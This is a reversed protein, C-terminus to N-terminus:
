PNLTAPPPVTVELNTSDGQHELSEGPTSKGRGPPIFQEHKRSGTYCRSLGVAANDDRDMPGCKPCDYVRVSLPMPQRHGCKCCEQSSPHFRDVQQLDSGYWQCKYTLLRLFAGWGVDAISRSLKPNRILNAVALDEVVLASKTRALRTTTKHLFDRRINSVRRHCRAVQLIRKKRRHSGKVSRSLCRQRRRLSKLAKRLPKPAEIREIEGSQSGITAFTTLGLDIGVIPGIVPEPTAITQETLVAVQWRDAIRRITASLLKAGSPLELPKNKYRIEGIKPLHLYRGHLSVCRFRCRDNIFKRAFNPYKFKKKDRFFNKFARTCDEFAEEFCFKSVASFWPAGTHKWQNWANILTFQNPKILRASIQALAWNYAFRRAGVAQCLATRQVNNPDLELRYAKHVVVDRNYAATM